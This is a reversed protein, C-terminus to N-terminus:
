IQIATADYTYLWDLRERALSQQWEEATSVVAEDQNALAPNFAQKRNEHSKKVVASTREKRIDEYRAGAVAVDDIYKKLCAAIVYADEIAM